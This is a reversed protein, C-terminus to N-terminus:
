GVVTGPAGCECRCGPTEFVADLTPFLRANPYTYSFERCTYVHVLIKQMYVDTGSSKYILKEM